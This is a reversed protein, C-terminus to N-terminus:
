RTTSRRPGAAGPRPQDPTLAAPLDLHPQEAELDDLLQVACARVDEPLRHRGLLFRAGAVTRAGDLAIAVVGYAKRRLSHVPALRQAERAQEALAAQGAPRPPATM